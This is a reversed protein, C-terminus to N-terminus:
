ESNRVNYFNEYRRSGTVQLFKCTSCLELPPKPDIISIHNLSLLETWHFYDPTFRAPPGKADCVFEVALLISASRITPHSALLSLLM